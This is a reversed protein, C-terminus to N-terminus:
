RSAGAWSNHFSAVAYKAFCRFYHYKEREGVPPGGPPHPSPAAVPEISAWGGEGTEGSVRRAVRERPAPSPLFERAGFVYSPSAPAEPYAGTATRALPGTVIVAAMVAAALWALQGGPLGMM